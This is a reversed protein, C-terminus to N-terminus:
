KLVILSNLRNQFGIAANQYFKELLSEKKLGCWHAMSKCYSIKEMLQSPALKEERKLKNM